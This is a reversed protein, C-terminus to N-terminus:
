TDAEELHPRISAAFRPAARTKTLADLIRQPTQPTKKLAQAQDRIVDVMIDPYLDYLHSLFTDPSQAEVDYPALAARPFHRLNSTVIVQAGARIAAALVHRDKPDNTLAPMFGEYNTVVAEPFHKEIQLLLYSADDETLPNRDRTKLNRLVEDWIADTWVPRYLGVEAARLLTDRLPFGYLVSADLVAILASDVVM